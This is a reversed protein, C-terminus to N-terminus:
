RTLNYFQQTEIAANASTFGSLWYEADDKGLGSGMAYATIVYTSLPKSFVSQFYPTQALGTLTYSSGSLTPWNVNWEYKSKYQYNMELKISKSGTAIVQDAGESPYDKNTLYYQGHIHTVGLVNSVDAAGAISATITAAAMAPLLLVRHIGTTNM